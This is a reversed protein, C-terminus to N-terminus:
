EIELYAELIFANNYGSNILGYIRELILIPYHNTNLDFGDKRKTKEDFVFNYKQCVKTLLRGFARREGDTLKCNTKNWIFHNVNDKVSMKIENKQHELVMMQERYDIIMKGFKEINEELPLTDDFFEEFKELNQKVKEKANGIQSKLQKVQQRREKLKEAYELLRDEQEEFTLQSYPKESKITYGAWQHLTARVGLKTMVALLQPNDVALNDAIWDEGLLNVKRGNTATQIICNRWTDLTSVDLTKATEPDIKRSTSLRDRLTSLPVNSMRSYGSQSAFSAGTEADIYLEIGDETKFQELQMKEKKHQLFCM